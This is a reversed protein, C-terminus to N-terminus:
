TCRASSPCSSISAKAWRPRIVKGFTTLVGRTGAQVTRIPNVMVIVLAVLTVVLAGKGLWRFLGGNGMAM